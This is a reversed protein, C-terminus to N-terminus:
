RYPPPDGGTGFCSIERTVCLQMVQHLAAYGGEFAVSQVRATSSPSRAASPQDSRTIDEFRDLASVQPTITKDINKDIHTVRTVGVVQVVADVVVLLRPAAHLTHRTTAV